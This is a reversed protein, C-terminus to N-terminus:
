RWEGGKVAGAYGSPGGDTEETREVGVRLATKM